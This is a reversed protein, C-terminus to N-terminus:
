DLPFSKKPLSELTLPGQHLREVLYGEIVIFDLRANYFASLADEVSNVIPEGRINLSTNILCPIATQKQFETIVNHMIPNDEKTICQMRCTEDVHVAASIRDVMPSPVKILTLMYKMLNITSDNRIKTEFFEKYLAYTTIPALPRFDERSKVYRNIHKRCESSSPNAVISRNGLARPGFEAKGQCIAGIKNEKLLEVIYSIINNNEINTIKLGYLGLLKNASKQSQSYGLLGSDNVNNKEENKGSEIFPYCSGVASGGDGPSPGIVISINPYRTELVSTLKCNLAVGGSFFITEHSETNLQFYHELYSVVLIELYKQTSAAMDKYYDDIDSERARSPKNGLLNIFKKTILSSGHMDLISTNFDHINPLGFLLSIKDIYKPRGYPALGMLKYEGTLTKFGCYVTMASYFLGISKDIPILKSYKASGNVIQCALGSNGQGYADIVFGYGDRKESFMLSSGLHSAHHDSFYLDNFTLEYEHLLNRLNSIIEAFSEFTKKIHKRNLKMQKIKSVLSIAAAKFIDEYYYVSIVKWSNSAVLENAYHLSKSPWKSDGKIRSFREESSAYLVKGSKSVISAASDHFGSSIGICVDM